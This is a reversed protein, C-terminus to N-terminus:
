RTRRRAEWSPRTPCGSSVWMKIEELHWRHCGSSLVVHRPLKGAAKMREATATSIGLLRAVEDLGVLLPEAPNGLALTELLDALRSLVAAL